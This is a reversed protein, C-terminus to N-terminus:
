PFQCIFSPFVSSVDAQWMFMELIENMILLHVRVVYYEYM